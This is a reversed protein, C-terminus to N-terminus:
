WYLIDIGVESPTPIEDEIKNVSEKIEALDKKIRNKLIFERKRLQSYTRIKKIIELLNAESQLIEKKASVAELYEVGVHVINEKKTM